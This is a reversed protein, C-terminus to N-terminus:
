ILGVISIIHLRCQVPCLQTVRTSAGTSSLQHCIADCLTPFPIPRFRWAPFTMESYMHLNNCCQYMYLIYTARIRHPIYESAELFRHFCFQILCTSRASVCIQLTGFFNLAQIPDKIYAM